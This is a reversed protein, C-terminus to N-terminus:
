LHSTHTNCALASRTCSVAKLSACRGLLSPPIPHHSDFFDLHTLGLNMGARGFAGDLWTPDHSFSLALAKLRGADIDCEMLLAQCQVIVSCLLGICQSAIGYM